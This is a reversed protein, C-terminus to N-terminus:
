GSVLSYPCEINFHAKKVKARMAPAESSVMDCWMYVCMNQTEYIRICYIIWLLGEILLFQRKTLHESHHYRALPWDIINRTGGLKAKSM